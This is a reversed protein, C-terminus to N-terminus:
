NAVESLWPPSLDHAPHRSFMTSKPVRMGRRMFASRLVLHRAHREAGRTQLHGQRPGGGGRPVLRPACGAGMQVCVCMGDVQTIIEREAQRIRRFVTGGRKIQKKDAWEDSQSIRFHVALIVRQHQGRRARLGARAALAGQAYVVCEGVEALRRRLTYHMFVEHSHRYWVDGAARSSRGVALRLGFVPVTLTRNWSFPTVV